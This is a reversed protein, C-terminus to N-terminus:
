HVPVTRYKNISKRQWVAKKIRTGNEAPIAVMDSNVVSIVNITLNVHHVHADARILNGASKEVRIAVVMARVKTTVTGMGM